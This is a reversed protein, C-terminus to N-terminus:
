RPLVRFETRRNEAHQEETCDVGNGCHNVLQTEGYGHYELRSRRIGRSVLYDVVGQARRKSLELNFDDSSRSDTHSNIEVRIEPRKLMLKLLKEDIVSRAEATLAASNLNYYIPLLNFDLLSCEIKKWEYGETSKEGSQDRVLFVEERLEPKVEVSDVVADRVLVRKQLTVYEAPIEVERYTAPTDIVQRKVTKYRGNPPNRQVYGPMEVIKKVPINKTVAPYEVYCIVDCEGPIPSKCGDIAPRSEFRAFAPQIEFVEFTDLTQVPMLTYESYPEEVLITDIVERYVAPVYEFRKSAEKVLVREEVTKYEAPVVKYEMYSPTVVVKAVEKIEEIPCRIYCDGPEPNPPYNQAHLQETITLIPLLLIFTLIRM